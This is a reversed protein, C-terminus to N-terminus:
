EDTGTRLHAKRQFSRAPRDGICEGQQNYTLVRGEQEDIIEYCTGRYERRRTKIENLLADQQASLGKIKANYEALIRAKDASIKLIEMERATYDANAENIEDESLPLEYSYDNLIEDANDELARIRELPSVDQFLPRM